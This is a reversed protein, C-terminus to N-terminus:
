IGTTNVEKSSSFGVFLLGDPRKTQLILNVEEIEGNRAITLKVVEGLPYQYLQYRFDSVNKIEVENVKIIVDGVLIGSIDAPSQKICDSVYVGKKFDELDLETKIKPKLQDISKVYIGLYPRQVVQYTELDSIITKVLSIPIAFGIGEIQTGTMKMSNIGILEGKLNILAGGSNGPNIAADTQIVTALFDHEGDKNLDVPILRKPASVIGLTISGYLDLGLPNGIAYVFEGLRVDDDAAFKISTNIEGRPIKLVALDTLLDSGVLTAKVREDRSLAVEIRDADKIVHQNTVIYAEDKTLKYIVGSGTGKDQNQNKRIVGVVAPKAQHIAQEMRGFLDDEAAIPKISLIGWLHLFLCFIIGICVGYLFIAQKRHM